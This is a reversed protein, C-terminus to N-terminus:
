SCGMAKCGDDDDEIDNEIPSPLDWEHRLNLVTDPFMFVYCRDGYSVDQKLFPDVIGMKGNISMEGKENIGVVSGPAIWSRSKNIAPVIAIHVADKRVDADLPILNGLKIKNQM